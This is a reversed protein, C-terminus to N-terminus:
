GGFLAKNVEWYERWIGATEKIREHKEAEKM